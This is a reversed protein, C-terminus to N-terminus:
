FVNASLINIIERKEEVSEIPSGKIVGCECRAYYYDEIEEIKFPKFDHKHM